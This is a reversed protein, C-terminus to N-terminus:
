GFRNRRRELKITRNTEDKWHAFTAKLVFRDIIVAVGSIIGLLLYKNGTFQESYGNLSLIRLINEYTDNKSIESLSQDFISISIAILAVLSSLWRWLIELRIAWGSRATKALIKQVAFEDFIDNRPNYKSNVSHVQAWKTTFDGLNEIVYNSFSAQGAAM